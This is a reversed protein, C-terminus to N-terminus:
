KNGDRAVPPCDHSLFPDPLNTSQVTESQLLSFSSQQSKEASMRTFRMSALIVILGLGSQQSM